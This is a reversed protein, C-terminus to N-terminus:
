SVRVAVTLEDVLIVIACCPLIRIHRQIAVHSCAVSHLIGGPLKLPAKLELCRTGCIRPLQAIKIGVGMGLDVLIYNIMLFEHSPSHKSAKCSMWSALLSSCLM